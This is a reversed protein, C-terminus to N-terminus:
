IERKVGQSVIEGDKLHIIYDAYEAILEIKHEVLVITKGRKKMIQIIKFVKETGQTDLQSTPEDIIIIEPDMVIISAFAIRQKQGGSLESPDKDKLYTIGLLELVEEVNKRIIDEDVGLNELGFAVEEFVTDKIGSIQTFPNQFVFGIEKGLDGLDWESVDKGKILIEGRLDGKHFHPIFGRLVNCLTTKGGGNEGILAYLKVEELNVNINHLSDEKGIPYKYSLNRISIISMDDIEM